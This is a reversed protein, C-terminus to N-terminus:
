SNALSLYDKIKVKIEDRTSQKATFDQIRSVETQLINYIGKAVKKIRVIEQKSIDPNLLLDFIALSEGCQV